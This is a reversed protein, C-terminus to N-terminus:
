PDTVQMPTRDLCWVVMWRMRCRSGWIWHELVGTVNPGLSPRRPGIKRLASGDFPRNRKKRRGGKRGVPEAQTEPSPHHHSTMDRLRVARISVSQFWLLWFWGVKSGRRPLYGRTAPGTKNAPSSAWFAVVTSLRAAAGVGLVQM